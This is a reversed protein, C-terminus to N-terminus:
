RRPRLAEDLAQLIVSYDTFEHWVGRSTSRQAVNGWERAWKHTAHDTLWLFV